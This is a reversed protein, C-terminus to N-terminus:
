PGPLRGLVPALPESGATITGPEPPSPEPARTRVVRRPTHVEGTVRKEDGSAPPLAPREPGPRPVIRERLEAELEARIEAAFADRVSRRAEDVLEPDVSLRCPPGSAFAPGAADGLADFLRRPAPDDEDDSADWPVDWPIGLMRAFTQFWLEVADVTERDLRSRREDENAAALELVGAKDTLIAFTLAARQADATKGDVLARRVVALAAQATETSRRAGRRKDHVWEEVNVGAPAGAQGAKSRWRRITGAPIGTRRSAEAPGDRAAIELARDRDAQSHRPRRRRGVGARM